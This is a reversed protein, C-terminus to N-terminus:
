GLKLRKDSFLSTYKLLIKVSRVVKQFDASRHHQKKKINVEFREAFRQHVTLM